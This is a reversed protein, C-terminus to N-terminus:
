SFLSTATWIFSTALSFVAEYLVKVIAPMATSFVCAFLAAAGEVFEREYHLNALPVVSGHAFWAATLVVM